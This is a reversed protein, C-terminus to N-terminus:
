VFVFYSSIVSLSFAIINHVFVVFFLSFTALYCWWIRDSSIIFSCGVLCYCRSSLLSVTSLSIYLMLVLSVLAVEGEGDDRRERARNREGERERDRNRQRERGREREKEWGWESHESRKSVAPEGRGNCSFGVALTKGERSPRRHGDLQRLHCSRDAWFFFSPFLPPFFLPFVFCVLTLVAWSVVLRFPSFSIVFTNCFHTEWFLFLFLWGSLFPPTICFCM